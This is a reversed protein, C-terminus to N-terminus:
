AARGTGDLRFSARAGGRPLIKEMTLFWVNGKVNARRAPPGEILSEVLIRDPAVVADLAASANRLPAASAMAFIESTAWCAIPSAFFDALV